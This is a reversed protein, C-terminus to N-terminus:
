YDTRSHKELVAQWQEADLESMPTLPLDHPSTIEGHRVGMPGDPDESDVGYGQRMSRVYWNRRQKDYAFDFTQNSGVDQNSWTMTGPSVQLDDVYRMEEPSDMLTNHVCDVATASRTTEKWTDAHRSFVILSCHNRADRRFTDAFRAGHYVAVVLGEVGDDTLNGKKYALVLDDNALVKRVDDPVTTSPPSMAHPASAGMLWAVTGALTSRAMKSLTNRNM